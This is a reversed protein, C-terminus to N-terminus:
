PDTHDSTQIQEVLFFSMLIVNQTLVKLKYLNM